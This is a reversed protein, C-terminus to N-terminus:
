NCLAVPRQSLSPKNRLSRFSRLDPRRKIYNAPVTEVDNAPKEVFYQKPVGTIINESVFKFHVCTRMYLYWPPVGALWSDDISMSVARKTSLVKSRSTLTHLHANHKQEKASVVCFIHREWLKEVAKFMFGRLLVRQKIPLCVRIDLAIQSLVYTPTGKRSRVQTEIRM